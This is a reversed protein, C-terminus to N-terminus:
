FARSVFRLTLSDDHRQREIRALAGVRESLKFSGRDPTVGLRHNKNIAFGEAGDIEVSIGYLHPQLTRIM